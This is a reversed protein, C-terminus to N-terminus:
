STLEYLQDALRYLEANAAETEERSDGKLYLDTLGGMGPVVEHLERVVRAISETSTASDDLIRLREALWDAQGSLEFRRLLDVLARLLAILHEHERQETHPFDYTVAAECIDRRHAGPARSGRKRRLPVAGVAGEVIREKIERATSKKPPREV